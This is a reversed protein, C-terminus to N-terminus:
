VPLEDQLAPPAPRLRTLETILSADQPNGLLLQREAYFGFVFRKVDEASGSSWPAAVTIKALENVKEETAAGIGVDISHSQTTGYTLRIRFGFLTTILLKLAVYAEVVGTQAEGSRDAHDLELVISEQAEAYRTIPVSEVFSLFATDAQSSLQLPMPSLCRRLDAEVCSRLEDQGASLSEDESLLKELIRRVTGGAIPDAYGDLEGALFLLRFGKIVALDINIDSEDFSRLSAQVIDLTSMELSHKTAISSSM